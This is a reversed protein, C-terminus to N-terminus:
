DRDRAMSDGVEVEKESDEVVCRQVKVVTKGTICDCRMRFNDFVLVNITGNAVPLSINLSCICSLLTWSGTDLFRVTAYDGSRKGM